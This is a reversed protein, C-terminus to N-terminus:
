LLSLPLSFSCVWLWTHEIRIALAFVNRVVFFLEYRRTITSKFPISGEVERIRVSREGSPSPFCVRSGSNVNKHMYGVIFHIAFCYLNIKTSFKRWNTSFVCNDINFFELFVLVLGTYEPLLDNPSSSKEWIKQFPLCMTSLLLHKPWDFIIDPREQKCDHKVKCNKLFSRKSIRSLM